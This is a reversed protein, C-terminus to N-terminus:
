THSIDSESNRASEDALQDLALIAASVDRVGVGAGFCPYLGEEDRSFAAYNCPSSMTCYVLGLMSRDSTAYWGIPDSFVDQPDDGPWPRLRDFEERTIPEFPM